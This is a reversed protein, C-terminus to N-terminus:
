GSKKFVEAELAQIREEHNAHHAGMFTLMHDFRSNIETFGRDVRTTLADLRGGLTDVRGGLTDVRGGLADMREGIADVKSSLVDVRENTNEVARAIRELLAHTENRGNGQNGNSGQDDM